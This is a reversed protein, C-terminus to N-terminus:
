EIQQAKYRLEDAIQNMITSTKDKELKKLNANLEKLEKLQIRINSIEIFVYFSEVMLLCIGIAVILLVTFQEPDRMFLTGCDTMKHLLNNYVFFINNNMLYLVITKKIVCEYNM